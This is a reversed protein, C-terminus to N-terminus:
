KLFIHHRRRGDYWLLAPKDGYNRLVESLLYRKGDIDVMPEGYDNVGIYGPLEVTIEDYIESAPSGYSYVPQKEHSLVGYSKYITIKM